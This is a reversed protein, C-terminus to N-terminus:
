LEYKLAYECKECYSYGGYEYHVVPYGCIECPVLETKEKM